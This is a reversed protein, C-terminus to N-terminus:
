IDASEGFTSTTSGLGINANFGARNQAKLVSSAVAIASASRFINLGSGSKAAVDRMGVYRPVDHGACAGCQNILGKKNHPLKDDFEENCDTCVRLM